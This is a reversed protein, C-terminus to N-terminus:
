EKTDLKNKVSGLSLMLERISEDVKDFFINFRNHIRKLYELLSETQASNLNLYKYKKKEDTLLTITQSLSQLAEINTLSASLSDTKEILTDYDSQIASSIEAKAKQALSSKLTAMKEEVVVKYKEDLEQKISHVTEGYIEGRLATLMAERESIKLQEAVEHRLQGTEQEIIKQKQEEIIQSRLEINVRIHEEQKIQRIAEERIEDKDKQSLGGRIEQALLVRQESEISAREKQELETRVTEILDMRQRIIIADNEEDFVKKFAKQRLDQRANEIHSEFEEHLLKEHLEGSIKARQAELISEYETSRIKQTIENEVDAKAKEEFSAGMTEVIHRHAETAVANRAAEILSEMEKELVQQRIAKKLSDVETTYIQERMEDTITKRFQEAIESLVQQKARREMDGQDGSEEAMARNAICPSVDDSVTEKLDNPAIAPNEGNELPLPDSSELPADVLEPYIPQQENFFPEQPLVDNRVDVIPDDRHSQLQPIEAYSPRDTEFSPAESTGSPISLEEEIVGRDEIISGEQHEPSVVKIKKMSRMTAIILWSLGAIVLIAITGAIQLFMSGHKRQDHIRPSSFSPVSDEMVEAAAHTQVSRHMQVPMSKVAPTDTKVATDQAATNNIVRELPKAKKRAPFRLIFRQEGPIRMDTEDFNAPTHTASSFCPVGDCMIQIPTKEQSAFHSFVWTFDITFAIVGAFRRKGDTMAISLPQSWQAYWKGNERYLTGHFAEQTSKPTAFWPTESVDVVHEAVSDTQRGCNVVMGKSSTRRICSVAPNSKLLTEIVERFPDVEKM